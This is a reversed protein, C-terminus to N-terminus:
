GGESVRLPDDEPRPSEEVEAPVLAKVPWLVLTVRGVVAGFSLLLEGEFWSEDRSPEESDRLACSSLAPVRESRDVSTFRSVDNECCDEGLPPLPWVWVPLAWASTVEPAM